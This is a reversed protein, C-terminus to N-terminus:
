RELTKVNIESHNEIPNFEERDMNRWVCLGIALILLGVLWLPILNEENRQTVLDLKGRYEWSRLEDNDDKICGDDDMEYEHNNTYIPNGTEIEDCDLICKVKKM